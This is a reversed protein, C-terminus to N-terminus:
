DRSINLLAFVGKNFEALAANYKEDKKECLEELALKNAGIQLFQLGLCTAEM